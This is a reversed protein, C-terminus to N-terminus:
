SASPRRRPRLALTGGVALVAVLIALGLSGAAPAGTAAGPQDLLIDLACVRDNWGSPLSCFDITGTVPLTDGTDCQTLIVQAIGAGFTIRSALGPQALM